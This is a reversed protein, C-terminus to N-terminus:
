VAFFLQSFEGREVTFDNIPKADSKLIEFKSMIDVKFGQSRTQSTYNFLEPVSPEKLNLKGENRLQLAQKNEEQIADLNM